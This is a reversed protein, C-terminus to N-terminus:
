AGREDLAPGGLDEAGHVPGTGGGRGGFRVAKGRLPLEDAVKEERRSREPRSTFPRAHAYVFIRATTGALM